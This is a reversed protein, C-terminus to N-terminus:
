NSTRYLFYYSDLLLVIQVFFGWELHTKQALLEWVSGEYLAGM